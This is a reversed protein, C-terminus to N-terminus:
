CTQFLEYENDGEENEPTDEDDDYISFSSRSVVSFVYGM